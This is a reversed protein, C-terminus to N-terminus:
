NTGKRTELEVYHRYLRRFHADRMSMMFRDRSMSRLIKVYPIPLIEIDSETVRLIKSFLVSSLGLNSEGRPFVNPLVPSPSIDNSQAHYLSRKHLHIGLIHLTFHLSKTYSV